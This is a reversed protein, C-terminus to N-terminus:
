AGEQEGFYYVILILTTLIINLILIILILIIFILIILTLMILIPAEGAAMAYLTRIDMLSPATGNGSLSRVDALYSASDMGLSRIEPLYPANGNRVDSIFASQGALSRVDSLIPLSGVRFASSADGDQLYAM